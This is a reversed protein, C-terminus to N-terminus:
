FNRLRSSDLPDREWEQPGANLSAADTAQFDVTVVSQCLSRIQQVVPLHEPHKQYRELAQLNAFLAVLAFDYSRESQVVDRGFEFMQIERIRNPLDDLVRELAQVEDATVGPNFKLLVVHTIM